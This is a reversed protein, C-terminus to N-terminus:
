PRALPVIVTFTSGVGPQSEVEIDGAMERVLQRSIYLGLGLGTEQDTTEGRDYPQFLHALQGAPIGRGSDTVAIAACPEGQWQRTTVAVQITGQRPTYKIANTILNLLAQRLRSPDALVTLDSEPRTHLSQEKERAVPQLMELADRLVQDVSVDVVKLRLAGASLRGVDLLNEIVSLLHEGSLRIRSIAERQRDTLPDLTGDLLLSSYARIATLPSRLEHGLTVRARDEDLVVRTLRANELAVATQDALASLLWEDDGTVPTGPTRVAAMLGTVEGQAVLPVSLFCEESPYDLLEQLRRVLSENFPAHLETLRDEDVGHAARLVLLGEADQLMILAQEAEMLTATRAVALELVEEISTTYTLARSVETLM